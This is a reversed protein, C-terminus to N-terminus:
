KDICSVQGKKGIAAKKENCHSFEQNWSLLSDPCDESGKTAM